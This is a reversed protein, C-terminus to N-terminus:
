LTILEVIEVNEIDRVDVAEHSIDIRSNFRFPIDFECGCTVAEGTQPFTNVVGGTAYNSFATSNVNLTITTADTSYISYRASNIQTMGSVGSVYVTDDTTFTHSGVTVVARAAKTINSINRTKNAAFTVKGTTTDVTFGAAPIAVGSVGMLVTGSVPKFITRSPLGISLPTGGAGYQKQLQYVGSSVLMATQDLATPASTNDNTSFDDMARVRFGAYMGYARHYLGVIAAWLDTTKGVYGINYYRTPYPHILRRSESGSSTKTIEVAYEDAYTAGMKISVPLREELFPQTM